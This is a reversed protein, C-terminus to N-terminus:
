AVNSSGCCYAVPTSATNTFPTWTRSSPSCVPAVGPRTTRPGPQVGGGCAPVQPPFGGPRPAAAADRTLAPFLVRGARTGTFEGAVRVRIGNVRLWYFGKAHRPPSTADAPAHGAARAFVGLEAHWGGSL